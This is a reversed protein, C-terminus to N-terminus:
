HVSVLFEQGGIQYASESTAERVAARLLDSFWSQLESEAARAHLIIEPHIVGYRVVLLVDVALIETRLTTSFTRYFSSPLIMYQPSKDVVDYKRWAGFRPRRVMGRKPLLETLLEAMTKYCIVSLLGTSLEREVVTRLADLRIDLDRGIDESM